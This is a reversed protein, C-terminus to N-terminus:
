HDTTLKLWLTRKHRRLRVSSPYLSCTISSQWCWALYQEGVVSLQGNPFLLHCLKFHLPPHLIQQHEQWVQNREAPTQHRVTANRSRILSQKSPRNEVGQHRKIEDRVHNREDALNVISIQNRKREQAQNAVRIRINHTLM